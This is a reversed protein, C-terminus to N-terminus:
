TTIEEYEDILREEDRRAVDSKLIRIWLFLFFGAFIVWEIAYAANQINFGGEETSKPATAFNGDEREAPSVAIAEGRAVADDSGDPAGFEVVYGSLIPGGWVNVLEGASISVASDETLGGVSDEPGSLYGFVTTPGPPASPLEDGPTVWGRVVPVVGGAQEGDTIRLAALILDVPQGNVARDTVRLQQEDFEGTVYIPTAYEDATMTTQLDIVDALPRADQGIREEHQAAIRDAGRSTARELQWYGLRICVGAMVIFLLLLGLMKPTFAADRWQAFTSKSM